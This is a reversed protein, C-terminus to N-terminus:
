EAPASALSWHTRHRLETAQEIQGSARNRAAQYTNRALPFIAVDPTASVSQTWHFEPVSQLEVMGVLHRARSYMLERLDNMSSGTRVQM